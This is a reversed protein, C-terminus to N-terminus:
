SPPFRHALARSLPFACLIGLSTWPGHPPGALLAFAATWVLLRRLALGMSAEVESPRWELQAAARRALGLAAFACLLLAPARWSFPAGLPLLPPTLLLLAALRLLRPPTRPDPPADLADELRGLRAVVAVYAGYALPALWLAPSPAGGAGAFLGLAFDGGRCGGLLAPGLLPGRPGLDYALLLAAVFLAPPLAAPAFAAVTALGATFLALGLALALPASIVGSPLPRGPRTRADASRDRWDNLVLGAEFLLVSGAIAGALTAAAPLRGGGGLVAGALADAAATPALSLRLLRGLALARGLPRPAPRSM